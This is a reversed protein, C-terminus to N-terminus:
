QKIQPIDEILLPALHLYRTTARKTDIDDYVTQVQQPTLGLLKTSFGPAVSQKKIM